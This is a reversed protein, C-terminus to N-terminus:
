PNTGLECHGLLADPGLDILASGWSLGVGYGLLMMKLSRDNPRKLGGM